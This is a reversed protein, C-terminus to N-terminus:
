DSQHHQSHQDPSHQLSAPGGAPVLRAGRRPARSSAGRALFLEGRTIAGFRQYTAAPGPPPCTLTGPRRGASLRILIRDIPQVAKAAPKVGSVGDSRRLAGHESRCWGRWSACPGTGETAVPGVAPGVLPEHDHEGHLQGLAQQVAMPHHEGRAGLDGPRWLAMAIRRAVTRAVQPSVKEGLLRVPLTSPLTPLLLGTRRQAGHPVSRVQPFHKVGLPVALRLAAVGSSGACAPGAVM